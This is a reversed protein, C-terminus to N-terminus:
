TFLDAIGSVVPEMQRNWYFKSRVELPTGGEYRAADLLTRVTKRFTRADDTIHVHPLLAAGEFGRFAKSTGVIPRGSELAEATKLNSGEGESIPLLILHSARVAAQLDKKEMRKVMEIRSSNILEFARAGKMQMLIHGVSGIVLIKEEPALFTLGPTFMDWFGNANPPHGSSVFVAFPRAMYRRWGDVRGANCSFPEVGNGAVVVNRAEASASRFYDADNETCAIVLDARSAAHQEVAKIEAVLDARDDASGEARALMNEKLRFEINHSSYVLRIDRGQALKEAAAFLWPHESIIVDPLYNDRITALAAIAAADSLAHVGSLYDSLFPFDERWHPSSPGFPLDDESGPEYDREVYVAVTKVDHGAHRLEGAIHACRIQGGHSPAQIPYNTLQLIKM